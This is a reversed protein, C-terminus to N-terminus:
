ATYPQMAEQYEPGNPDGRGLITIFRGEPVDILDPKRKATYFRKLEKRLDLRIM